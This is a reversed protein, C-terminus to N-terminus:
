APTVTSTVVLSPTSATRLAAVITQIQAASLAPSIGNIAGLLANRLSDTGTHTAEGIQQVMQNYRADIHDLITQVDSVTFGGPAATPIDIDNHDCPGFPASSSPLGPVTYTGDTYQWGIINPIDTPRTGGYSAVVLGLWDPRNPWLEAFDARNGYGWVRDQSRQRFALSASLSNLDGSHDGSIQGGWTEGDIMVMCDAPVGLRNLNALIARNAGPRYVVYVTFGDIQGAARARKAWALNAAAHSDTYTGDCARFILWRHPYSDNVPTQFESVDATVTM